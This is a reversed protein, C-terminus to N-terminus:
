QPLSSSIFASVKTAIPAAPLKKNVKKRFFLLLWQGAQSCFLSLYPIVTIFDILIKEKL